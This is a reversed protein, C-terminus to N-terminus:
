SSPSWYAADTTAFVGAAAGDAVTVPGNGPTTSGIMLVGNNVATLGTYSSAVSLIATGGGVKTVTQSGAPFINGSFTVAGGVAQTIVLNQNLVINGSFISSGATNGGLTFI